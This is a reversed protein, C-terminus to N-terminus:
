LKKQFNEVGRCLMALICYVCFLVGSIVSEQFVNRYNYDNNFLESAKLIFKDSLRKKQENKKWYRELKEYSKERMRM